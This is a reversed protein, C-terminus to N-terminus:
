NAALNTHAHISAIIEGRLYQAHRQTICDFEVFAVGGDNEHIRVAYATSQDSLRNEIISVRIDAKIEPTLAPKGSLVYENHSDLEVIKTLKASNQSADAKETTPETQIV